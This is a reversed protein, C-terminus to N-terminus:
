DLVTRVGRVNPEWKAGGVDPERSLALQSGAAAREVCAVLERLRFPKTLFLVGQATLDGLLASDTYGSVLVAPLDPWIARVKLVLETGDMGALVIDSVLVSPPGAPDGPRQLLELAAEASDVASVQWGARQLARETLRRVAEEDEVLLLRREPPAPQVPLAPALGSPAATDARTIAARTIDAPIM